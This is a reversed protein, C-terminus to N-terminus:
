IQVIGLTQAACAKVLFGDRLQFLSELQIRIKNTCVLLEALEIHRIPIVSFRNVFIRRISLQNAVLITRSQYSDTKRFRAPLSDQAGDGRFVPQRLQSSVFHHCKADRETLLFLCKRFQILRVFNETWQQINVRQQVRQTVIRSEYFEQPADSETLTALTKSACRM